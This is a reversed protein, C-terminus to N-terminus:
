QNRHEALEYVDAMVYRQSVWEGDVERGARIAKVLGLRVLSELTQPRLHWMSGQRYATCHRAEIDDWGRDWSVDWGERILRYAHSQAESLARETTAM